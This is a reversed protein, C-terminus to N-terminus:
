GIEGVAEIVEAVSSVLLAGDRLERHVGASMASTVPGPVGMVVRSLDRAARATALSGSRIAAEVVVTGRTLAAIVRNRVLFRGRYPVAGPAAEALLAGDECLRDFLQEHGRPYAIDVGCALVAVSSGSVALAGRHAAADIGYAGGSVVAWGREALGAALEAAVTEGYRTCARAGVVSVSRLATLRLNAAGRQWLLLPARPGLDDLQSPWDVTGPRLIRGGLRDLQALDAGVQEIAAAVGGAPLRARCAALEGAGDLVLAVVGPAGHARVLAGVRADGPETLRSLLVRAATDDERPDTSM